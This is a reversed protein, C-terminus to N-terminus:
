KHITDKGELRYEMIYMSDGNWYPKYYFDLEKDYVLAHEPSFDGASKSHTAYDWSQGMGTQIYTQYVAEHCTRCKEMGVYQISTDYVNRWASGAKTEVPQEEPSNCFFAPLLLVVATLIILINKISRSSM